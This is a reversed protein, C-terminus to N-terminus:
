LCPLIGQESMQLFGTHYTVIGSLDYAKIKELSKNAIEMDHTYIPNSGALKGDHINAADGCVIIRSERLYAAIHGPTHGPVHVIEIGGCIPLIQENHVQEAVTILSNKHINKWWDVGPRQDEPLTDYQELRGALKIPIKRGDIYPAEDVHAVVRLNPALKQLDTVCGIHDWDQHTIIIHTLDEARFGEDTIAKVVADTQGPQGADILVLNNSDWTLVLNLYGMGERNIPLLAVNQTLKM